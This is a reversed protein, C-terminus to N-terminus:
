AERVRAGDGRGPGPGSLSVLIFQVQCRDYGRQSDLVWKQYASEIRPNSFRMVLTTFSTGQDRVKGHRLGGHGCPEECAADSM